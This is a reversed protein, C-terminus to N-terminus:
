LELEGKTKPPEIAKGIFVQCACPTGDSTISINCAANCKGRGENFHSSKRHTCMCKDPDREPERSMLAVVNAHQVGKHFGEVRGLFGAGAVLVAVIVVLFILGFM